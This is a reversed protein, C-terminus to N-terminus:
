FRNIWTEFVTLWHSRNSVVFVKDDAASRQNPNPVVAVESEITACEVLYFHKSLRGSKVFSSGEINSAAEKLKRVVAYHGNNEVLYGKVHQDGEKLDNIDVFCLIQCPIHHKGFAFTAWDYWVSSDQGGTVRYSPSARFLYPLQDSGIRQHETKVYVDKGNVIPLVHKCCFKIVSRPYM